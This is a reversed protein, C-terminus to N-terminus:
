KFCSHVYETLNSVTELNLKAPAFQPTNIKGNRDDAVKIPPHDKGNDDIYSMYLATLQNKDRKSSFILWHSDASWDHWSDMAGEKNLALKTVAHDGLSLLYIDSDKRAFVGKHADARCFSIWKGNPAYRAFYQYMGNTSANPLPVPEGGKGDNFPVQYLDMSKVTRVKKEKEVTQYRSFLVHKGDPSFAPMDEVFRPDSAGPLPAIANTEFNYIYIDGSTYILEFPEIIDKRGAFKGTSKKVLAAHKSDPTISVFSFEGFVRYNLRFEHDGRRMTIGKRIKDKISNFIATDPAYAHCGVCARDIRLLVDPQRQHLFLFKIAVLDGPTFYPPVVRFVIRDTLPLDSVFLRVPQSKSTTGRSLRYITVQVESDNLLEAFENGDPQWRHGKRLLVALTRKTSKLEILFATSYSEPTEWEVIPHLHNKPIVANDQLSTIRIRGDLIARARDFRVLANTSINDLAIVQAPSSSAVVFFCGVIVIPLINRIAKAM